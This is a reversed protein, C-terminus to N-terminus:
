LMKLALKIVLEVPADNKETLIKQVVERVPTSPFGLKTLASSAEEAVQANFKNQATFDVSKMKYDPYALPMVKDSLEIIIRQASKQGVGKIHRLVSENSAVVIDALEQPSYSSLIMRAMAAGIGNVTQLLLFFEREERTAFGWLQYADERISEAIYLKAPNGMGQLATYTNLTIGLGYGVGHCEIVALTPQLETLEGKLYEIM